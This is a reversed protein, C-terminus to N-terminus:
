MKPNDKLMNMVKELKSLRTIEQKASNIFDIFKNKQSDTLSSFFDKADSNKEFEISLIERVVKQIKSFLSM